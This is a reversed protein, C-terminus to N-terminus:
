CQLMKWLVQRDTTPEGACAPISRDRLLGPDELGDRTGGCVRPYVRAGPNGVCGPSPTGGCVRPYVRVVQHGHHVGTQIAPEGACAPISRHRPSLQAAVLARPEGACAPISRRFLDDNAEHIALSPNGRVRPSLGAPTRRNVCPLNKDHRNGRVRPSLGLISCAYPLIAPPRPEGACAPISRRTAKM